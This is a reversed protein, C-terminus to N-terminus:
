HVSRDPTRPRGRVQTLAQSNLVNTNSSSIDQRRATTEALQLEERIRGLQPRDPYFASGFEYAAKAISWDQFADPMKDFDVAFHYAIKLSGTFVDTNNDLDFLNDGQRVINKASDVNVTDVDFVEAGGELANVAIKGNGAPSVTVNFKFNYFWGRKQIDRVADNLHSEALSQTSTGSTDLSAVPPRGLRRLIDNVATLKNKM